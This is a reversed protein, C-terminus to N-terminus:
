AGACCYKVAPLIRPSGGCSGKYATWQTAQMLHISFGLSLFFQRCTLVRLACIHPGTEGWYHTFGAGIMAHKWLLTVELYCLSLSLASSTAHPVWSFLLEWVAQTKPYVTLLQDCTPVRIYNDCLHHCPILPLTRQPPSIVMFSRQCGRAYRGPFVYSLFTM